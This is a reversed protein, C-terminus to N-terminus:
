NEPLKNLLSNIWGSLNNWIASATDLDITNPTHPGFEARGLRDGGGCM